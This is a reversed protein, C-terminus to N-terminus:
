AFAICDPHSVVSILPNNNLVPMQLESHIPQVQLISTAELGAIENQHFDICDDLVLISSKQHLNNLYHALQDHHNKIALSQATNGRYDSIIISAGYEILLSVMEQHGQQAALMLPTKGDSVRRTNIDVGNILLFETLVQHGDEASLTLIYKGYSDLLQSINKPDTSLLTYIPDYSRQDIALNLFSEAARYSINLPSQHVSQTFSDDIDSHFKPTFQYLSFDNLETGIADGLANFILQSIFEPSDSEYSGLPQNCDYYTYTGEPNIYISLAHGGLKSYVGIDLWSDTWQHAIQLIDPLNSYNIVKGPVQLFQFINQLQSKQDEVYHWQDIRDDQSLQFNSFSRSKNHSFWTVDNITQEFLEIGNTYKSKLIESMGRNTSLSSLRRDWHSIYSLIDNFEQPCKINHYYAFLFSWGQCDGNSNLYVERHKNEKISVDDLYTMLQYYIHAQSVDM